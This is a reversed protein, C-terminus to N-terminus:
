SDVSPDTSSHPTLFSISFIYPLFSYYCHVSFHFFSKIAFKLLIKWRPVLFLIWDHLSSALQFTLFLIRPWKGTCYSAGNIRTFFSFKCLTIDWLQQLTNTQWPKLTQEKSLISFNGPSKHQRQQQSASPNVYLPLAATWSVSLM